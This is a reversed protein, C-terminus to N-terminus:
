SKERSSDDRGLNSHTLFSASGLRANRGSRRRTPVGGAIATLFSASGLRANRRQQVSGRHPHVGDTLFSASGLRANRSM